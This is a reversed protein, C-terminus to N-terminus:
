DHIIQSNKLGHNKLLDSVISMMYQHGCLCVKFRTNQSLRNQCFQMIDDILFDVQNNCTLVSQYDFYHNNCSMKKLDDDYYLGENYWAYRYLSNVLYPKLLLRTELIPKIKAFGIGGAVFIMHTDDLQYLAKGLPLEITIYGYNLEEEIINMIPHRGHHSNIHIEIGKCDFATNAISFYRPEKHRYHIALYCGPFLTKKLDDPVDLELSIIKSNIMTVQKIRTNILVSGANKLLNILKNYM